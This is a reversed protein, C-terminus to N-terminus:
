SCSPTMRMCLRSDTCYYESSWRDGNLRAVQWVAGFDSSDITDVVYPLPVRSQDCLSRFAATNGIALV